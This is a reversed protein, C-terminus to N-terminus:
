LQIAQLGSTAQAQLEPEICSSFTTQSFLLRTEHNPFATESRILACLCFYTGFKWHFLVTLINMPCLCLSLQTDITHWYQM